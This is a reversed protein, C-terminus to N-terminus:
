GLRPSAYTVLARMYQSREFQEPNPANIQSLSGKLEEVSAYENLEMWSTLEALVARPHEVGRKLLASAMMTVDAGALLLKLVDAADHVGTTAAFSVDVRGKLIAIWRLPLRLEVSTSLEVHPAVRLNALDIDPQMFRNFLVLGEAGAQALRKAMNPLSSFYPHIKVALPVTVESRVARVLELYRHEVAAADADPDTAVHYVNLEIAAAGAQQMSTAYKVWGGASTGNLSAIVPISLAQVARELNRLYADPGVNYDDLEPFYGGPAEAFGEAGYDRLRALQLEDHEIQEEFLSPLVVAGIGAESLRALAELDGTVPSASAVLPTKLSLGLYRTSLEISM